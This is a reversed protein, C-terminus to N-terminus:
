EQVVVIQGDISVIALYSQGVIGISCLDIENGGVLLDACGEVDFSATVVGPETIALNDNSFSQKVTMESTTLLRVSYKDAINKAKKEFVALKSEDVMSWAVAWYDAQKNIDIKQSVRSGNTIANEIAFVSENAGDIWDHQIVKSVEASMLEITKFQDEYVSANYIASQLYFSTNDDLANIYSIKTSNNTDIKDIIKDATDGCASLSIVMAMAIAIKQHKTTLNHTKEQNSLITSM